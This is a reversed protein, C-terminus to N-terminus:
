SASESTSELLITSRAELHLTENCRLIREHQVTGPVATDFLTRWATGSSCTPLPVDHARSDANFLVLLDGAADERAGPPRAMMVALCALAPDNWDSESMERGAPHLWTV